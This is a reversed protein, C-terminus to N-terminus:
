KVVNTSMKTNYLRSDSNNFIVNMSLLIDLIIEECLINKHTILLYIVKDYFHPFAIIDWINDMFTNIIHFWGHEM